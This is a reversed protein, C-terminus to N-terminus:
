SAAMKKDNGQSAFLCYCCCFLISAGAQQLCAEALQLFYDAIKVNRAKENGGLSCSFWAFLLMGAQPLCTFTHVSLHLIGYYRHMM